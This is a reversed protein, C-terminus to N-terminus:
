RKSPVDIWGNKMIKDFESEAPTSPIAARTMTIRSFKPPTTSPFYWNGLKIPSTTSMLLEGSVTLGFNNGFFMDDAYLYAVALSHTVMGVFGSITHQSDSKLTMNKGVNVSKGITARDTIIGGNTSYTGGNLQRAAINRFGTMDGNVRLTGIQVGSGDMNAGSSFYTAGTNANKVEAFATDSDTFKATEASVTGINYIDFKGMDLTRKMVNFDDEGSTGRHLYKSNDEGNFDYAIRYVLDGTEFDPATAAWTAAGAVGNADVVAADEGINKAIKAVQLEWLTPRFSLYIDTIVAGRVTYKDIFGSEADKSIQALEEPSLRIQVVDPWADQHLRVFNLAPERLRMIEKAFAINKIERMSDSIQSYLFPALLTVIAISLLVELISAGRQSTQSLLNLTHFDSVNTDDSKKFRFFNGVKLRM